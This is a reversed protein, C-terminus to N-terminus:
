EASETTTEETAATTEESAATATTTTVKTKSTVEVDKELWNQVLKAQNEATYFKDFTLLKDTEDGKEDRVKYDKGCMKFVDNWLYFLVKSIFKDLSIINKDDAKCFFYGLKKDESSTMEGIEENVAELFKWWDYEKDGVKITWGKEANEIPVYVWDWRRKFASDIPFLSQDSTNMTAWIYLNSPLM